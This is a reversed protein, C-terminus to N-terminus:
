NAFSVFQPAKSSSACKPFDGREQLLQEGWTLMHLVGPLKPEKGHSQSTLIAANLETATKMRQNPDLLEAISSPMAIPNPTAATSSTSALLMRPLEFALLAMTRELEKLFQPHEAGRPALEVQAFELAESVRSTRIL